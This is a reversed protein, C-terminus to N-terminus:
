REDGVGEGEEGIGGLPEGPEGYGFAEANLDDPLRSWGRAPETPQLELDRWSDLELRATEGESDQVEVLGDTDLVATVKFEMGDELRRYWQGVSPHHATTM